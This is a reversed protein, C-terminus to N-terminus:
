RVGGVLALIAAVLAAATFAAGAARTLDVARQLRDFKGVALRSLRAVHEALDDALLAARLQEARLTAWLPFGKLHAGGLNPRVAALLMAISAVLLGVGVAGVALAAPHLHLSTAVTWVGALLAGDFALLLSAKSDTRGIEMKVEAHAAVLVTDASPATM